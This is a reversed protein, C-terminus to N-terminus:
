EDVVFEGLPVAVNKLQGNENTVTFGYIMIKKQGEAVEVNAVPVEYKIGNISMEAYDVGHLIDNFLRHLFIGNVTLSLILAIAIVIKSIRLICNTIASIRKSMLPM